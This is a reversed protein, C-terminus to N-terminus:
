LVGIMFVPWVKSYVAMCVCSVCLCGPLGTSKIICPFIVSGSAGVIRNPAVRDLSILSGGYAPKCLWCVTILIVTSVFGVCCVEYNAMM